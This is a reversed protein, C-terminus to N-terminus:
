ILPTLYATDNNEVYCFVWHKRIKDYEDVNILCGGDMM